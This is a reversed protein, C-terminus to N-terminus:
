VEREATKVPRKPQHLIGYCLPPRRSSFKEKVKRGAAKGVVNLVAKELKRNMKM